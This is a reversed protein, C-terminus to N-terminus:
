WPSHSLPATATSPVEITPTLTNGNTITVTGAPVQTWEITLTDDADEIDTATAGTLTYTSGKTVDQDDGADITPPTDTVVADQITLVRTDTVAPNASDTVSMTLTVSPATATSPVEITPTLTNGNTITVTGAPVQTWEITLTDDADEIDTATAGTLTYTSGKTVDQDDGADITPPTDTVVADQITLVRTDTVAPNASDTVSMTLTVSPATATSPVEITPTLTNGNTITVTGAPVQTWEITLTDDADEIDTATAGTLTYTSGKTVDQDDGADITPPTDTVVADQITLVRTDTVAPNASDTVSMTLTVSPATATSPVEITPTLTNGNTITVTGAPVQTWEITLTDDADEIDTATAGTLTYTSGKTVDQDDGADITPPTDTVVADQITLVRTDTVAPNASDTVSMTLTVSPATATSPVEITPTLTNGNTITVTGAPVQTWEITLTDDADEIDTATAGTLTYTSGKTVDQDDGADITPPTDTVVADQITLVRTDTVAPNASDTVSMTLTVSPATATSPVEITPTLTNGNTITVTGAPVQTWEITLTDDADEIDTATAGTLTYTSGKTVDQDDGADITPPTDTVVADQITLVRTDTVAPNASDTVSMTLTVSPATATSPVEITPTLTNGNTITVTGAPVQTWEITLTDDADEIDTATAGTLTYTSGKTVDQDDGADITPPTDTVVADQITLVRTDTVAPNASDTVSMTLTVSPATATSPVEITPTLTNGNTITVTGAPVQTWEITLTDDADEIDTATAGTLTYTSGKTVDQDDGADITPPTDTVVADQITLVRTDTVAPNASDTVSMTLTVSPATATSPVEITPTLTNGNTITVTGAPVQTWEITLTDDADEIDTATAGTLTYTSGKTVDQDDGADITPPTDTVVADQITLVRTDTVAPNASDTVSMTLTVSPATATSPVEITPTLTNGNTITVTGAPVQTWEITLTDDADEIDTATAGTLTYTSGKTVDQDDGADITPPTDTVVADQITLVRTDTVAPNASDTVSMTLTVSPATATSPVEITPTLTNGNTITVTGAPVQTWEITLTDDADEIDTATAGTLTYTSGKTVDQDDGADITPPTDTVVADQITLVRTDTVAPNASDTVSMTLTVSPATATSPVEITPTLTNGNTITVTGAPVQTWEITLTDDADEIDTATAGTLTYTSGKTVDQDDGADITPPTDTVVADQITLVRTDTVAPNASDTVSMTLTVSPATATSPVEITPTLTNGNTITVTGAPVQTWEITLTDDADEIDTATAGTLTYTSGKTVDQDDGADITPPNDVAIIDTVMIPYVSSLAYENVDDGHDGVVFMKAGDNSFTM